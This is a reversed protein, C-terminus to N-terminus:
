QRLAEFEWLPASRRNLPAQRVGPGRSYAKIAWVRRSRRWPRRRPQHARQPAPRWRCAAAASPPAWMAASLVGARATVVSRDPPTHGRTHPQTVLAQHQRGELHLEGDGASPEGHATMAPGDRVSAQVRRTTLAEAGDHDNRAMLHPPRSGSISRRGVPVGSQPGPMAHAIVGGHIRITGTLLQVDHMRPDTPNRAATNAGNSGCTDEGSIPLRLRPANPSSPHLTPLHHQHLRHPVVVRAPRPEVHADLRQHSGLAAGGFPSRRPSRLTDAPQVPSLHAALHISSV